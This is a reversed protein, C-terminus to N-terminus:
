NVSASANSQDVNFLSRSIIKHHSLSQQIISRMLIKAQNHETASLNSLELHGALSLIVKGSFLNTAARNNPNLEATFGRRSEYRYVQNAQIPSKQNAELEFNEAYGIERILCQEFERLIISHRSRNNCAILNAITNSYHEFLKPHADHRHEEPLQQSQQSDRM